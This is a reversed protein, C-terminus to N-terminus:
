DVIHEFRLGIRRHPRYYNPSDIHEFNLYANGAVQVKGTLMYVPIGDDLEDENSVPRYVSAIIESHPIVPLLYWGSGHQAGILDGVTVKDLEINLEFMGAWDVDWTDLEPYRAVIQQYHASRSQLYDALSTRERTARSAPPEPSFNYVEIEPHFRDEFHGIAGFGARLQVRIFRGQSLLDDVFELGGGFIARNFGRQILGIQQRDQWRQLQQEDDDRQEHKWIAGRAFWFSAGKGGLEAIPQGISDAIEFSALADFGGQMALLRAQIDSGGILNADIFPGGAFTPGDSLLVGVSIDEGIVRSEATVTPQQVLVLGAVLASGVTKGLHKKMSSPLGGNAYGSFFLACILLIKMIYGGLSVRQM